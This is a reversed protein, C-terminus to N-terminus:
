SGRCTLAEGDRGDGALMQGSPKSPLGLGAGKTKERDTPSPPFKDGGEEEKKEKWLSHLIGGGVKSTQEKLASSEEQLAGNKPRRLDIGIVEEKAETTPRTM